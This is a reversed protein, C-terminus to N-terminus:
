VGYSKLSKYLDIYEKTSRDWSFDLLMMKKRLASMRSKNQYIDLARGVANVLEQVELTDFTIGYGSPDDVDVVTDSLGGTNHVVPM